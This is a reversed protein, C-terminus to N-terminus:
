GAITARDRRSPRPVPCAGDSELRRFLAWALLVVAGAALVPQVPAFWRLAGSYGLALLALKNCVPCGVALFTLLGGVMGAKRQPEGDGRPQDGGETAPSEAPDQRVYTAVLLGSLVATVLLVPWAWATPPVDRGFVPNPVLATPIAVVVVTLVATAAATWHRRPGWRLWSSAAARVRTGPRRTQVEPPPLTM